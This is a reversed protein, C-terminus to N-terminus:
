WGLLPRLFLPGVGNEGVMVDGNVDGPTYEDNVLRSTHLGVVTLTAEKSACAPSLCLLILPLVMVVVVLLLPLSAKTLTM